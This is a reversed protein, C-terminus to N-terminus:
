STPWGRRCSPACRLALWAACSRGAHLSHLIPRFFHASNGPIRPLPSPPKDPLTERTNGRSTQTGTSAM